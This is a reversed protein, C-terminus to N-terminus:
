PETEMVTHFAIYGNGFKKLGQTRMAERHENKYTNYHEMGDCFYQIIYTSGEADDQELLRSMRYDVFLGTHMMAPIHEEKMWQLWQQVIDANVKVTTNYIIM